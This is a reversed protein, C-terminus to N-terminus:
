CCCTDRQESKLFKLLDLAADLAQRRMLEFAFTVTKEAAADTREYGESEDRLHFDLVGRLILYFSKAYLKNLRGREAIEGSELGPAVIENEAFDLFARKFGRLFAPQEQIKLPAVRALLLSRYHLSEELFAFLFSLLRQRSDFKGWEDGQQVAQASKTIMEAWFASEVADFSAFHSFFDKEGIDLSQCFKFVTAPPRGEERLHHQYAQIIRDRTEM